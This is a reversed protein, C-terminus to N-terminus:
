FYEDEKKPNEKKDIKEKLKKFEENNNFLENAKKSDCFSKIYKKYSTKDNKNEDIKDKLKEIM